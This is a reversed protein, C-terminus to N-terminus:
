AGEISRILFQVMRVATAGKERALALSKEAAEKAATKKQRQNLITAYTYYSEYTNSMNAAKGALNEAMDMAKDDTHFSNSILKAQKELNVADDAIIKRSYEKCAKLYSKVDRTHKCYSMETVLRFEEGRQPYVAAVKEWAEELLDHSAFETAKNATKMGAQWIRSQVAEEGEQVVLAKHHKTLLPFIRSDTETAALLILKLNDPSTIDKQGRLYDNAVRLHSEGKRIQSRVYKYIFAPDRNGKEYEGQYDISSELDSIAQQGAKILGEVQMAGRVQGMVKGSPAIFYLTPYVSVPYTKKFAIGAAKEMDMKLSIFNENFYGGVREDPFVNAAMRKCPGCWTTYADVFIPKDQKQAEALAEEWSGHFFEIGQGWLASVSWCLCLISIIKKM